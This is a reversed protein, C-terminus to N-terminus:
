GTYARTKRGRKPIEIKLFLNSGGVPKYSKTKNM